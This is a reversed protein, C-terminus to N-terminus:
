NIGIFDNDVNCGVVRGGRGDKASALRLFRAFIGGQRIYEWVNKGRTKGVDSLNLKGELFGGGGVRRRRRRRRSPISLQCDNEKGALFGYTRRRRQRKETQKWGRRGAATELLDRSLFLRRSCSSASSSVFFNPGFLSFTSVDSASCCCCCYCITHTSFARPALSPSERVKKWVVAGGSRSNM